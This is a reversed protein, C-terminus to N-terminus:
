QGVTGYMATSLDAFGGGVVTSQAAWAVNCLSVPVSQAPFSGTTGNHSGPLSALFHGGVLVETLRGGVPAPFNPGNITSTRVKLVM